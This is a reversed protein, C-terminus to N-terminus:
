NKRRSCVMKPTGARTETGFQAQLTSVSPGRKERTRKENIINGRIYNLPLERGM